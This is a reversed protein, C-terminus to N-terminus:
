ARYSCSSWALDGLPVVPPWFVTGSADAYGTRAVEAVTHRENLRATLCEVVDAVPRGERMIM